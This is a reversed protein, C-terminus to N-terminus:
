HKRFIRKYFYRILSAFLYVETIWIIDLGLIILGFFIGVITTFIINFANPKLFIALEKRKILYVIFIVTIIIGVLYRFLYLLSYSNPNALLFELFKADSKVLSPCMGLSGSYRFYCYDRIEYIISLWNGIRKYETYHCKDYDYKNNFLESEKEQSYPEFTLGGSLFIGKYSSNWEQVEQSFINKIDDIDDACINELYSLFDPNFASKVDIIVGEEKSIRIWDKEEHIVLYTGYEGNSIYATCMDDLCTKDDILISSNIECKIIIEPSSPQCALLSPAFVVFLTLAILLRQALLFKM